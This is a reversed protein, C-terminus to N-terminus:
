EQLVKKIAELYKMGHITDPELYSGESWENWANITILKKDMVTPDAEDQYGWLPIKPQQHGAGKPKSHYSNDWKQFLVRRAQNSIFCAPNAKM